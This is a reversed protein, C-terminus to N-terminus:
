VWYPVVETVEQHKCVPVLGFVKAQTVFVVL